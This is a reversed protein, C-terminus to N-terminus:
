DALHGSQKNLYIKSTIQDIKRYRELIFSDVFMEEGMKDIAASLCFFVKIQNILYRPDNVLRSKVASLKWFVTWYM